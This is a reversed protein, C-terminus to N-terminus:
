SVAFRSPIVTTPPCVSAVGPSSLGIIEPKMTPSVRPLTRLASFPLGPSLIRRVLVTPRSPVAIRARSLAAEQLLFADGLTQQLQRSAVPFLDTNDFFSKECGLQFPDM